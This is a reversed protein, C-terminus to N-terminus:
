SSKRRSPNRARPARPKPRLGGAVVDALTMRDVVDVIATRVETMASRLLCSEEDPCSCREYAIQSLCSVPALTGDLTRLVEGLTVESADRGLSYGGGPGVQTDAIGVHSLPLFIQELFKPPLRNRAALDKLSVWTGPPASALDLLARLGYESRKSLRM